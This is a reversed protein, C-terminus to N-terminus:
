KKDKDKSKELNDKRRQEVLYYLWQNSYEMQELIGAGIMLIVFLVLGGGWVSFMAGVNFKESYLEVVPMSNGVIIGVIVSIALECFSIVKAAFSSM